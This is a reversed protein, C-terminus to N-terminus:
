AKVKASLTHTINRPRLMINTNTNKIHTGVQPSSTYTPVRNRQSYFSLMRHREHYLKIHHLFTVLNEFYEDSLLNTVMVENLM